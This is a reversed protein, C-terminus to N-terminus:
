NAIHRSMSKDDLMVVAAGAATSIDHSQKVVCLMIVLHPCRVLVLVVIVTYLM